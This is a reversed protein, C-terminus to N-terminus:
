VLVRERKGDIFGQELVEESRYRGSAGTGQGKSRCQRMCSVPKISYRKSGQAEEEMVLLEAGAQLRAPLGM